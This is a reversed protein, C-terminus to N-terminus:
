VLNQLISNKRLRQLGRYFHHRVSGLPESLRESIDKLNLGEFFFFELTQRQAQTLESFARELLQRNLSIEIERETDTTGRLPLADANAHAYFGTRSLYVKRDLARSISIRIIWSKATGKAPDFLQLKRQAYLFVDQVVDEAEVADRVIRHAIVFALRSYHQFLSEIQESSSLADRSACCVM